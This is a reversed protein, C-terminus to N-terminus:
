NIVSDIINVDGQLDEIAECVSLLATRIDGWAKGQEASVTSIERAFDVSVKLWAAHQQSQELFNKHQEHDGVQSRLDAKVQYLRDIEEQQVAAARELDKLELEKATLARKVGQNIGDDVAKRAASVEGRLKDAEAQLTKIQGTKADIVAQNNQREAEIRENVTTSLKDNTEKIEKELQEAKRKAATAEDKHANVLDQLDFNKRIAESHKKKAEALEEIYAATAKSDMDQTAEKVEEQETDSFSLLLVQTNIPLNISSYLNAKAIKMYRCCQAHGIPMNDKVWQGFTGHPLLEKVQNLENGFAILNRAAGNLHAIALEKHTEIQMLENSM